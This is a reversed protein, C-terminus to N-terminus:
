FLAHKWFLWFPSLVGFDYIRHSLLDLDEKIKRSDKDVEAWERWVVEHHSMCHKNLEQPIRWKWEFCDFQCTGSAWDSTYLTELVIVEGIHTQLVWPLCIICNVSLQHLAALVLIMPETRPSSSIGLYQSIHKISVYIFLYIHVYM